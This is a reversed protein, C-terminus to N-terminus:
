LRTLPEQFIMGLEGGRLGYSAKSGLSFIDRGRFLVQGDRKAGQPLLGMLGRGLTSKGCGSEGVLGLTEGPYLDLSVGDVAQIAGRVTGYWVRLDDVHLVPKDRDVRPQEQITM